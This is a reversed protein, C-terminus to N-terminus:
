KAHSLYNRELDNFSLYGSGIKYYIGNTKLFITPFGTVSLEASTNFDEEALKKYHPDKMKKVFDEADLGFKSAVQGYAEINEPELGDFYVAKQLAAAFQVTHAADLKKFVSLAIAPAVSTFIADGKKLTKDLFDIGFKVGTAKEVDKYAWSIYPAVEGIPGIRKGTIMGGSIVEFEVSDKYKEQFQVMVPSFGYCWGCLADYVYILKMKEQSKCGVCSLTLLVILIIKKM